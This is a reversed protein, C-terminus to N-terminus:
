GILKFNDFEDVEKYVPTYDSDKDLMQPIIEGGRNNNIYDQRYKIRSLMADIEIKTMMSNRPNSIYHSKRLKGTIEDIKMNMINTILELFNGTDSQFDYIQFLSKPTYQTTM